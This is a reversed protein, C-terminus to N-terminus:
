ATGSQGRGVWRVFVIGRAGPESPSTTGKAMRLATEFEGATFGRLAGRRILSAYSKAVSWHWRGLVGWQRPHARCESAMGEWDIRATHAAPPRGEDPLNLLFKM